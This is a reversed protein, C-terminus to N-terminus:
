NSHLPKLKAGRVLWGHQGRRVMDETLGGGKRIMDHRRYISKVYEAKLAQRELAEMVPNKNVDDEDDGMESTLTAGGHPNAPPIQSLLANLPLSPLRRHPVHRLPEVSESRPPVDSFHFPHSGAAGSSSMMMMMMQPDPTRSQLLTPSLELLDQRSRSAHLRHLVTTTLLPAPHSAHRIITDLGPNRQPQTQHSHVPHYSGGVLLSPSAAAGPPLSVNQQGLTTGLASSWGIGGSANAKIRRAAISEQLVLLRKKTAAQSNSLAKAEKRQVDREAIRQQLAELEHFDQQLANALTEITRRRQPPVRNNHGRGIHTPEKQFRVDISNNHNEETGVETFRVDKTGNPNPEEEESLILLPDPRASLKPIRRPVMTEYQWGDGFKEAVRQKLADRDKGTPGQAKASATTTPGTTTSTSSPENISAINGGHARLLRIDDEAEFVADYSTPAVMAHCRAPSLEVTRVPSSPSSGDVNDFPQQQQQQLQGRVQARFQRHQQVVKQAEAIHLRQQKVVLAELSRDAPIHATISSTISPAPVIPLPILHHHQAQSAIPPKGSSPSSASSPEQVRVRKPSKHIALSSSDWRVATFGRLLSHLFYVRDVDMPPEEAVGTTHHTESGGRHSSATLPSPWRSTTSPTSSSLLAIGENVSQDFPKVGRDHLEQVVDWMTDHLLRLGHLSSSLFASSTHPVSGSDPGGSVTLAFVMALACRPRWKRRQSVSPRFHFIQSPPRAVTATPPAVPLPLAHGQLTLDVERGEENEDDHVSNRQPQSSPVPDDHFLTQLRYWHAILTAAYQREQHVAAAEAAEAQEQRDQQRSAVVDKAKLPDDTEGRSARRGHHVTKWFGQLVLVATDRNLSKDRRLLDYLIRREERLEAVAKRSRYGRWQSQILVSATDREMDEAAADM